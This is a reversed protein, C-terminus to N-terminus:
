FLSAPALFPYLALPTEPVLHHALITWRLTQAESPM